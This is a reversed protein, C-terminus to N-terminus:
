QWAAIITDPDELEFAEEPEASGDTPARYWSSGGSEPTSRFLVETRDPSLLFNENYRPGEPILTRDVPLYEDNFTFLDREEEPETHEALLDETFEWISLENDGLLLTNEDIFQPPAAVELNVEYHRLDAIGGTILDPNDALATEIDIFTLVTSSGTHDAYLLTEGDPSELLSADMASGSAPPTLPGQVAIGSEPLVSLSGCHDSGECTGLDNVEGSHLDMAQVDGEDASPDYAVFLIRENVADYVPHRYDIPVGFDSVEQEPALTTLAGEESMVGFTSVTNGNVEESYGRLLLHEHPSVSILAGSCADFERDHNLEEVDPARGHGLAESTEAAVLESTFTLTSIRTGDDASYLTFVGDYGDCDRTILGSETISPQEPTEEAGEETSAGAQNEDSSGGEGDSGGCASLLLTLAAAPALARIVPSITRSTM